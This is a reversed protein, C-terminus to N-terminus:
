ECVSLYIDPTANYHSMALLRGDWSIEPDGGDFGGVIPALQGAPWAAARTARHSHMVVDHPADAEWYLDLGDSAISPWGSTTTGSPNVGPVDGHPIWADSTSARSAWQLSEPPIGSYYAELEDPTVSISQCPGLENIVTPVGFTDTAANYPVSDCSEGSGFYMTDGAGNFSPGGAYNEAQLETIVSANGFKADNLSARYLYANLGDFRTFVVFAMSPHFALAYEDNDATSLTAVESPTGWSACEFGAGPTDDGADSTDDTGVAFAGFGVRGCASVALLLWLAKV